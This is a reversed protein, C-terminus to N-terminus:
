TPLVDAFNHSPKQYEALTWALHHRLDKGQVITYDFAINRDRNSIIFPDQIWVIVYGLIGNKSVFDIENSLTLHCWDQTLLFFSWHPTTNMLSRKQM